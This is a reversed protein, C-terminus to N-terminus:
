EKFIFILTIPLPLVFDFGYIVGSTRSVPSSPETSVKHQVLEEFGLMPDANSNKMKMVALTSVERFDNTMVRLYTYLVQEFISDHM